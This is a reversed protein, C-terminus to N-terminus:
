SHANAQPLSRDARERESGHTQMREQHPTWVKKKQATLQNDPPSFFQITFLKNQMNM